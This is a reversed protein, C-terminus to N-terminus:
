PMVGTIDPRQGGSFKVVFVACGANAHIFLHAFPQLDLQDCPDKMKPDNRYLLPWVATKRITYNNM